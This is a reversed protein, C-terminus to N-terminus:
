PTKDKTLTAVMGAVAIGAAAVSDQQEPRLVLGAATAISILGLWTSRERARALIFLLLDKM